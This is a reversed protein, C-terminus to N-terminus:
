VFLRPDFFFEETRVARIRGAGAHSPNLLYNSEQPIVASPVELVAAEGRDIWEAGLSQLAPPAPYTRWDAPLATPDIREIELIEPIEVELSVLDPPVLDKDVHGLIELAALSLTSSAYVVRRGRPHWRGAVYLGGRGGFPDRSHERRCLRWIRM